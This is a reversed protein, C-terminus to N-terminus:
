INTKGKRQRLRWKKLMKDAKEKTMTAFGTLRGDKYWFGGLEEAESYDVIFFDDGKYQGQIIPRGMITIGLVFVLIVLYSLLKKM